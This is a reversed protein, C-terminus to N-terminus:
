IGFAPTPECGTNPNRSPHYEGAKARRDATNKPPTTGLSDNYTSRVVRLGIKAPRRLTHAMGVLKQQVTQQVYRLRCKVTTHAESVKSYKTTLKRKGGRGM